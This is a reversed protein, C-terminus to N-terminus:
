FSGIIHAVINTAGGLVVATCRSRYYQCPKATSWLVTTDLDATAHTLITTYNTGDQSGELLVTWSTAAAGTGVVQISFFKKPIGTSVNIATGSATGTYTDSRAQSFHSLISDSVPM